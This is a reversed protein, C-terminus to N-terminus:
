LKFNFIPKNLNKNLPNIEPYSKYKNQQNNSSSNNHHNNPIIIIFQIAKLSNLKKIYNNKRNLNSHKQTLLDTTKNM